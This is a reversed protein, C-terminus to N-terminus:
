RVETRLRVIITMHRDPGANGFGQGGERLAFRKRNDEVPKLALNVLRRLKRDAEGDGDDRQPSLDCLGVPLDRLVLHRGEAADERDVLHFGGIRRPDIVKRPLINRAKVGIGALDGGHEPGVVAIHQFVQHLPQEEDGNRVSGIM